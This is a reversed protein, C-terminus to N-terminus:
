VFWRENFKCDKDIMFEYKGFCSEHWDLTDIELWSDLIKKHEKSFNRARSMSEISGM